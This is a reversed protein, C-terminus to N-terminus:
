AIPRRLGVLKDCLAAEELRTAGMPFRRLSSRHRGAPARMDSVICPPTERGSSRPM